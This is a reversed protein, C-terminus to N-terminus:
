KLILILLVFTSKKLLFLLLGPGADMPDPLWNDDNFRVNQQNDIPEETRGLEEILENNNNKDDMWSSVLCRAADERTRFNLIYIFFEEFLNMTSCWM